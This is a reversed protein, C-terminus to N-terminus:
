SFRRSCTASDGCHTSTVSSGIAVRMARAVASIYL